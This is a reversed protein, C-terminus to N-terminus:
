HLWTQLDHYTVFVTVAFLILVSAIVCGDVIAEPLAYRRGFLAPITLLIRGGDLVPIPLLNFFILSLSLGWGYLLLDAIGKEAEKMGIRVIEVPGGVTNKSDKRFLDSIIEPLQQTVIVMTGLTFLSAAPVTWVSTVKWAQDQKMAFAINTGKPVRIIIPEPENERRFQIALEASSVQELLRLTEKSTTCSHDNVHELVDGPRIGQTYLWSVEKMESVFVKPDTVQVMNRLEPHQELVAEADHRGGLSLFITMIMIAGVLNGVVGSILIVIQKFASAEVFAGTPDEGQELEMRHMGKLTVFGGLWFLRLVWRTNRGQYSWLAPGMGLSFEKVQVGCIRAALFHGLEHIFILCALLALIAIFDNM